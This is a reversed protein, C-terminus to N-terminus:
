VGRVPREEGGVLWGRGVERGAVVVGAPGVRAGSLVEVVAGLVVAAEGLAVASGEEGLERLVAEERLLSRRLWTLRRWSVERARARLM